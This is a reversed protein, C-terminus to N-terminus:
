GESVGKAANKVRPRRAIARRWADVYKRMSGEASFREAIMARAKDQRARVEEPSQSMAARIASHFEQEDSPDVVFGIEENPILEEIGESRSAVVACGAWLAEKLVNPLRESPKMSLFLFLASSDMEARLAERGIHGALSVAESCGLEDALRELREREPGDGFVDLRLRPDERWFTAFARIVGDVNKEPVLASATIWRHPDRSESSSREPLPVGRLVIAIEAGDVAKRELYDRNAEAHSFLAHASATTLDVLLDDAVLDYAGAFASRLPRAGEKELAPLVLGVHRSWFAHVVDAESLITRDVIEIVRPLCLLAQTAAVPSSAFRSVIRGTLSVAAKRRRWLLAPWKAANAWAPRDISLEPPVGCLAELETENKRPWKLTSVTVRHGLATLAVIDSIAFTETKVPFQQLLYHIRLSDAGPNATGEATM